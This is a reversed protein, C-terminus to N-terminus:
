KKNLVERRKQKLMRGLTGKNTDDESDTDQDEDGFDFHKEVIDDESDEDYRSLRYNQRNKMDDFSTMARSSNGKGVPSKVPSPSKSSSAESESRSSSREENSSM